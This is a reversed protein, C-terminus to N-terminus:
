REIVPLQGLHAPLVGRDRRAHQRTVTEIARAFVHRPKLCLGKMWCTGASLVDDTAIWGDVDVLIQDTLEGTRAQEHIHPRFVGRLSHM